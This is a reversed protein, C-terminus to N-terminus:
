ADAYTEVSRDRLGTQQIDLDSKLLVAFHSWFIKSTFKTVGLSQALCIILLGTESKLLV